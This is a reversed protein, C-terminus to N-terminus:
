RCCQRPTGNRLHYTQFATLVGMKLMARMWLGWINKCDWGFIGYQKECFQTSDGLPGMKESLNFNQRWIVGLKHLDCFKPCNQYNQSMKVQEWGIVGSKTEGSEGFGGTSSLRLWKMNFHGWGRAVSCIGEVKGNFYQVFFGKTLARFPIWQYKLVSKYQKSSFVVVSVCM